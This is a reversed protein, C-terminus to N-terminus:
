DDPGGLMLPEDAGLLYGLAMEPLGQVEQMKEIVEDPKRVTFRASIPKGETMGEYKDFGPILEGTNELWWRCFLELNDQAFCDTDPRNEDMWDTAKQPDSLAYRVFPEPKKGEVLDIGGSKLGFLKSRMPTGEEIAKAKLADVRDKHMANARKLIAEEAFALDIESAKM